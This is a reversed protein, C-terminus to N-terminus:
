GQNLAAAFEELRRLALEFRHPSLSFCCRLHGPTASWASSNIRLGFEELLIGPLSDLTLSVSGTQTRMTKGVLGRADALVFLGGPRGPTVTMGCASLAALLRSRRTSLQDRMADLYGKIQKRAAPPSEARYAHLLVSAAVLAHRDISVTRLAEMASLLGQDRTQMWGVRLGGAAFIKSLGSFVCVRDKLEPHGVLADSLSPPADDQGSLDLGRFIEDSFIRAGRSGAAEVVAQLAAADYHIGAPNSPNNLFLIDFDLGELSQPDYQWGNEESTEALVIEAGAARFLPPFYGYHGRPLLVKPPRGLERRVALTADFILPSVGAGLWLQEPTYSSGFGDALFATVRRRLSAESAEGALQTFGLICGQLLRDPIELENEGYDLRITERSGDAGVSQFAPWDLVARIRRSLAIERDSPALSPLTARRVGSVRFSTVGQFLAEYYRETLTNNRSFSAEAFAILAERLSEAAGLLFAPALDPYVRNSVLGVLVLLQPSPSQRDLFDFLANAHLASSIEFDESGEILLPFGRDSAAEILTSLGNFARNGDSGANVFVLSPELTRALEAIEELDDNAVLVDVGAKLFSKEFASALSRDVLIRDGEDCLSLLLGHVLEVRNPAVFLEEAGVALEYSRSLYNAIAARLGAGGSEHTYPAVKEGCFSEALKRLFGVQDAGIASLDIQDLLAGDDLERMAAYFPRLDREHDLRADYVRLDHWIKRGAERLAQATTADVPARSHKAVYFEFPNQTRKELRSLVAIDTDEAQQVRRSWIVRADFGRRSFMREIVERGPRGAINLVVTGGPALVVVAQELARALLGLGFQDEFVGQLAFYNSLDYLMAENGEAMATGPDLDPSPALVQPICGAILDARLGRDIADQLLDSESVELREFLLKRDADYRPNLDDDYSNLVAAIRACLVAGPNLDYAYVRELRRWHLMALSIWGSGTGMELMIRGSLDEQPRRLLGELFTLGWDEPEFISPIFVLDLELLGEGAELRVRRIRFASDSDETLERLRHLLRLALPRRAESRLARDVAGLAQLRGTAGEACLKLFASCRDEIENGLSRDTPRLIWDLAAENM